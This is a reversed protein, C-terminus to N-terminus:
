SGCGLNGGGMWVYHMTSPFLITIQLDDNMANYEMIKQIRLLLNLLEELSNTGCREHINFGVTIDEEYVHIPGSYFGM